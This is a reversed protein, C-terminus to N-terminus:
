AVVRWYIIVNSSGSAPATTFTVAINTSDVTFQSGIFASGSQAVNIFAYTPTSGLGHAINFLTTSGNGSATSKGVRESDLSAWEIDTAGSNTRLVQLSTGRAKRVFKSGNNALIDGTAQSTATLSNDTTNVTKNTVTQTHAEAVAVDNGTLLPLTWNRDADIASGVFSYSFTNAPNRLKIRSSRFISDFDGYTNTGGLLVDGGGAPTAWELDTGGSNTRLVQLSTGRAMRVFKTGNSKLLDGTATSTDTITNNTANITKNTITTAFAELVPIDNGTLLPWTITRNASLNSGAFIYAHSADSDGLKLRSTPFLQDFAGFTNAQDTYVIEAPLKARNTIQSLATNPININEIDLITGGTKVIKVKFDSPDVYFRSVNSETPATPAGGPPSMDFYNLWIWPNAIKPRRNPVTDGNYIQMLERTDNSGYKESTGPNDTTVELFDTFSM